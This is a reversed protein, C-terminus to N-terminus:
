TWKADTRIFWAISGVDGQRTYYKSDREEVEKVLQAPGPLTSTHIRGAGADHFTIYGGPKVAKKWHDYDKAVGEYSHDGDIFILDYFGEPAEQENADGVILKVKHDLGIRKLSAVLPVDNQPAIDISTVVSDDDGAVAFMYASGGYYRGVELIKAAPTTRALRFLHAAEDFELRLLGKNTPNSILMWDLDEFNRQPRDPLTDFSHKFKSPWQVLSRIALDPNRKILSFLLRRLHHNRVPM